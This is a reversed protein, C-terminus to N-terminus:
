GLFRERMAKPPIYCVERRGAIRLRNRAIVDYLRDRLGRPMVRVLRALSWPFGLGEAMRITGESKLWLCGNELLLNTQYDVPDLGYHRYIAAGLESQARLLRYHGQKDRRLVLGAWGSCFVCHGDFVIIPRDDPFDPVSPDARYGYPERGEIAAIDLASGM